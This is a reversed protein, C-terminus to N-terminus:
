KGLGHFKVKRGGMQIMFIGDISQFDGNRAQEYKAKSGYKDLLNPSTETWFGIHHREQLFINIDSYVSGEEFKVTDNPKDGLTVLGVVLPFDTKQREELESLGGELSNVTKTWKFTILPSTILLM